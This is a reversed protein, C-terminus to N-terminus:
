RFRFDSVIAGHKSTYGSARRGTLRSEDKGVRQGKRRWEPGFALFDARFSVLDLDGEQHVPGFRGILGCPEHRAQLVPGGVTLWRGRVFQARGCPPSFPQWARRSRPLKAKSRLFLSPPATGWGWATRRSAPSQRARTWSRTAWSAARSAV